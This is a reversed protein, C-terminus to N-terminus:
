ISIDGPDGGKEPELRNTYNDIMIDEILWCGDLDGGDQRILVFTYTHGYGRLDVVHLPLFARSGWRTPAGPQLSYPNLLPEFAMRQIMSRLASPSGIASRRHPDMFRYLTEVAFQTDGSRSLADIQIEVVEYFSMNPAPVPSDGLTPPSSACSATFIVAIIIVVLSRWRM